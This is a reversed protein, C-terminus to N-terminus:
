ACILQLIYSRSVDLSAGCQFFLLHALLLGDTLRWNHTPTNSRAALSARTSLPRGYTGTAPRLSARRRGPDRILRALPSAPKSSCFGRPHARTSTGFCLRHHRGFNLHLPGAAPVRPARPRAPKHPWWISGTLRTSRAMQKRDNLQVLEQPSSGCEPALQLASWAFCRSAGGLPM